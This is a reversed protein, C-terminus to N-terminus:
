GKHVTPQKRETIGEPRKATKDGNHRAAPRCNKPGLPRSPGPSSSKSAHAPCHLHPRLNRFRRGARMRGLVALPLGTPLYAVRPADCGTGFVVLVDPAGIEWQGRGILDTVIRRVQYATVEAVDDDPGFRVSELM